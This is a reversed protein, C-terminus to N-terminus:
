LRASFFSHPPSDRASAGGRLSEASQAQSARRAVRHLVASELSRPAPNEAFFWNIRQKVPPISVDCILPVSLTPVPNMCTRVNTGTYPGPLKRETQSLSLRGARLM